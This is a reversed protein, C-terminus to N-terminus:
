DREIYVVGNINERIACLLSIDMTATANSRPASRAERGKPRREKTVLKTSMRAIYRRKM